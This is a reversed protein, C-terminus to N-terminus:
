RMADSPPTIGARRDTAARAPLCCCSSTVKVDAHEWAKDFRAAVEAAEANKGQQRLSRSLGQLSWGNEPFHALDERYVKEADAYRGSDILV